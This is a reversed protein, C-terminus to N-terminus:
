EVKEYAQKNKKIAELKKAAKITKDISKEKTISSNLKKLSVTNMKVFNKPSEDRQIRSKTNLFSGRMTNKFVFDDIEESSIKTTNKKLPNPLAYNKFISQSIHSTARKRSM